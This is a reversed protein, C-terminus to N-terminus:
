AWGMRKLSGPAIRQLCRACTLTFILRDCHTCKWPHTLDMRLFDRLPRSELYKPRRDSHTTVELRGHVPNRYVREAGNGRSKSLAQWVAESVTWTRPTSFGM